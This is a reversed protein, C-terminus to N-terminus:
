GAISYRVGATVPAGIVADWHARRRGESLVVVNDASLAQLAAMDSLLRNERWPRLWILFQTACREITSGSLHKPLGYRRHISHWHNQRREVRELVM